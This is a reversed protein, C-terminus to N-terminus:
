RLHLVNGRILPVILHKVKLPGQSTLKRPSGGHAELAARHQSHIGTWSQFSRFPGTGTKRGNKTKKGGRVMYLTRSSKVVATTRNFSKKPSRSGIIRLFKERTTFMLRITPFDFWSSHISSSTTKMGVADRHNKFRREVIVKLFIL